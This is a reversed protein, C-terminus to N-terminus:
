TRGQLKRNSDFAKLLRNLNFQQFKSLFYTIDNNIIQQHTLFSIKYDIKLSFFLVEYYNNGINTASIFACLEKLVLKVGVLYMSTELNNNHNTDLPPLLQRNNQRFM